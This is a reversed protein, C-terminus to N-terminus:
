ATTAYDFSERVSDLLADHGNAEILELMTRGGYAEAPRRVVGPIRSRKLRKDLIDAIAAVTAAKPQRAAPPGEDLWQAAAQRSVGFLRGLETISLGFTESIRWLAPQDGDLEQMVLRSFRRISVEDLDAFPLASRGHPLPLPDLQIVLARTRSLVELAIGPGEGAIGVWPSFPAESSARELVTVGARSFGGNGTAILHHGDDFAFLDPREDGLAGLLSTTLERYAGVYSHVARWSGHVAHGVVEDLARIPGRAIRGVAKRAASPDVVDAITSTRDATAM